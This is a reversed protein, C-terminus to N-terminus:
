TKPTQLNAKKREGLGNSYDAVAADCIEKYTKWYEDHKKEGFGDSNQKTL